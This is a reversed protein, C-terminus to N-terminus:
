TSAAGTSGTAGAAVDIGGAGSGVLVGIRPALEPTVELGSREIAEGTAAVAFQVFRDSRRAEKRDMTQEPDFDKVEGAFRVDLDGPDFSTIPGIGCDGAVMASWTDEANLALPTVAGFGTVVVRHTM